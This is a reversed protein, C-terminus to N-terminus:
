CGDTYLIIEPAQGVAKPQQYILECSGADTGLKHRNRMAISLRTFNGETRHTYLYEGKDAPESTFEANNQMMKIIGNGNALPFGYSFAVTGINGESGTHLRKFNNDIDALAYDLTDYGNIIAKANGFTAATIMSNKLASLNSKYADGQLNLFKPVAVAGLIGLVVIVIVLEILTFGSLKRM